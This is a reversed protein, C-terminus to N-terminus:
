ANAAGGILKKAYNEAINIAAANIIDLNGSYVPLYDGLGEVQVMTTVIDDQIIPELLIKYGPVYKKIREICENIAGRIVNIDTNKVRTYITNRMYIPPEAPNLIIIVKAEDAGGVDILAKRTTVTFEDINKRTGSGASKSSISSVVEAYTVDAANNIAAVIPVTAQGACTVLNVNDGELIEHTLNVSPVVYPGVAAPTLDIAFKGSKKLIPAHVLHAAASTCDFVIKIDGKNIIHQIGDTSTEIGMKQAYEIGKSHRVNVICDAELYPSRKIKYLLDLGINGPGIIGVKVKEM